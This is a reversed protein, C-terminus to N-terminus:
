PEVIIMLGAKCLIILVGWSHVYLLGLLNNASGQVYRQM